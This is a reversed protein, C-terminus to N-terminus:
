KKRKRKEENLNASPVKSDEGGNTQRETTM